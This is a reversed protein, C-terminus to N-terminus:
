TYIEFIYLIFTHAEFCSLFATSPVESVKPFNKEFNQKDLLQGFGGVITGEMFGKPREASIPPLVGGLVIGVMSPLKFIQRNLSVESVKGSYIPLQSLQFELLFFKLGNCSM